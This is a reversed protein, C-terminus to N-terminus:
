RGDLTTLSAGNTSMELGEVTRQAFYMPQKPVARPMAENDLMSVVSSMHPRANPSDQVCMLGIHICKSVEDPSYSEMLTADMFDMSKGDKWLNWAYAILNRFDMVLHHPSSIKLGSVIELLFIGFSYTDSKLSFIGEMAYEPSMYGYTGVVHKTREHQENGGFIRAMGFDAIKANMESDLLINSPKLDRHIITMRSDQHLYLLGRAVGKIISFRRPWNLTSKRANDFLFKDLSKNPLYEYILLKEDEHICYGLLRVLNKHQLKAILVVENRFHEIGQESGKSLRKIAVEKGDQLIGKYVKGFGGRGLMNTEHFSNTAAAIDEFTIRSFELSQDWVEQSPRLHVQLAGNNQHIGRPKCICFIYICTLILLFAILPLVIKFVVHVGNIKNNTRAYNDGNGALRLYLHDSTYDAKVMDVLDGTWHFCKSALLIDSANTYAYGTCSCNRDCGAACEEFSRNTLYVFKDPLKMAPLTLFYNNGGCRVAEKRVCGAKSSGGGGDAPEFGDLCRCERVDGKVDCYGFPGCAGYVLCGKGPREFLPVWSSSSGEVWVRFMVEGTHDLKWHSRAPASDDARNYTFYAVEGDDIMQSLFSKTFSAATAGNWVGARWYLTSGRWTLIQLGTSTDGSLVFEGTSPDDPGKWAVIRAAVHTKYNVWLKFGPLFTDTPEDYSQWIETGNRSRLVFNGTDLLVAGAGTAGGGSGSGTTTVNNTKTAWLVRGDSDSLVLDSTNSVVLKGPLSSKIPSDRNAVWVYTRESINHYWIGLYTNAASGQLSFFGLAFLGNSSILEDGPSLPKTPRLRDDSNCSRVLLMLIFIAPLSAM